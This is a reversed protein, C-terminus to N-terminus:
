ANLVQHVTSATAKALKKWHGSKLHRWDKLFAHALGKGHRKGAQHMAVVVMGAARAAQMGPRSDEFVLCEEPRVKSLKAALFYAEPHPKAKKVKDGGIRMPLWVGLKMRELHHDLYDTHSCSVVATPYLSAATKIAARVGPYPKTREVLVDFRRRMGDTLQQRVKASYPGHLRHLDDSAEEWTRGLTSESPLELAGLGLAQTADRIARGTWRESDALTGDFDFFIARIL